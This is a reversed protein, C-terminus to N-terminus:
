PREQAVQLAHREDVLGFGHPEAFHELGGQVAGRPRLLDLRRGHHPESVIILHHNARGFGRADHDAPLLVAVQHDAVLQRRPQVAREFRAVVFKEQQVVAGVAGVDGDLALVFDQQVAFPERERPVAPDGEAMRVAAGGLRHLKRAALSLKTRYYISFRSFSSSWSFKKDASEHEKDLVVGTGAHHVRGIRHESQPPRLRLGELEGYVLPLAQQADEGFRLEDPAVLLQIEPQLALDLLQKGMLDQDRGPAIKRVPIELEIDNGGKRAHAGPLKGMAADAAKELLKECAPDVGSALRQDHGRRVRQLSDAVAGARHMARQTAQAGDQHVAYAVLAAAVVAEIDSQM